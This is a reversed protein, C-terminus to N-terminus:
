ASGEAVGARSRAAPGVAEKYLALTATVMRDFTFRTLFRRRGADGMRRRLGADAILARLCQELRVPDGPPALLGTESDVVAEPIGGTDSAVVPLGARMAELTSYPFAEFRSSLVFVQAAALRTSVDSRFGSLRVRDQLELRKVTHRVEGELPGDGVLELEWPLDRLRGMAQLLTAHDKPRAMRAVMVLLPPSLAPDARLEAPIDAMGNHVVALKGSGAIRHRLALQREFECVNIIRESFVAGLREAWRYIRGQAPSIRDTIAWGHPTFVAPIRLTAAALRGLFGAKATHAAVIDPRIRRLTSILEGLARLDGAPSIQKVLHPIPLCPVGARELERTFVGDGGALVLVEHGRAALAAALDRVHVEAGGLDDARTVIEVIRM